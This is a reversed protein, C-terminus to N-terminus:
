ISEGGDGGFDGALFVSSGMLDSNSYETILWALAGAAGLSHMAISNDISEAAGSYERYFPADQAEQCSADEDVPSLEIGYDAEDINFGSSFAYSISQSAAAIAEIIVSMAAGGILGATEVADSVQTLVPSETITATAVNFLSAVRAGAADVIEAINNMEGGQHYHLRSENYLAETTADLQQDSQASENEVSAVIAVLEIGEASAVVDLPASEAVVELAMISDTALVLKKDLETNKM